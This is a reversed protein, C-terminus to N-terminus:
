LADTLRDQIRWESNADDLDTLAASDSIRHFALERTRKSSMEFAVVGQDDRRLNIAATWIPFTRNAVVYLDRTMPRLEWHSVGFPGHIRLEAQGSALRFRARAKLEPSYFCMQLDRMPVEPTAKAEVRRYADEHGCDSVMLAEDRAGSGAARPILWDGAMTKLFPAVLGEPTESLPIPPGGVLSLAICGKFEVLGLLMGTRSCHYQGLLHRYKDAPPDEPKPGLEAGLVTDIIQFGLETVIAASGNTVVFIDLAFEPVIVLHSTGGVVGGSHRILKAGRYTDLELGLSYGSVHGNPLVTPSLMQKWSEESGVVKPNRLHCAWRLMDDVSSILGGDGSMGESFFMWRRWSNRRIYLNALRAHVEFDSPVLTTDLMDLPQLVLDRLVEAFPRQAVREIALSLLSYSGNCYLVREGPPFNARRQQLQLELANFAPHAIPGDAIFGLDIYCRYGSSHNMLQRLTPEGSQAGLEPVYTRISADINLKGEEALLLATLCTFQKTISAIRFRTRLTNPVSLEVNAVGFARSYIVKGRLAVGVAGGPADPLDYPDFQADLAKSWRLDESTRRLDTM